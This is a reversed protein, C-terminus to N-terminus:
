AEEGFLDDSFAVSVFGDFGDHDGAFVEEGDVLFVDFGIGDSGCVFEEIVVDTDGFEEDDVVFISEASEECQAVDFADEGFLEGGEFGAAIM